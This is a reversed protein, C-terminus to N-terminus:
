KKMKLAVARLTLFTTAAIVYCLFAILVVFWGVINTFALITLVLTASFSLHSFLKAILAFLAVTYFDSM